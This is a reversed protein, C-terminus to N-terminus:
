DKKGVNREGTSVFHGDESICAWRVSIFRSFMGESFEDYVQEAAFKCGDM